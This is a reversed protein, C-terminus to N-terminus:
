SIGLLTEDDPLPDVIWNVNFLDSGWLANLHYKLWDWRSRYRGFHQPWAKKLIDLHVEQWLKSKRNAAWNALNVVAQPHAEISAM